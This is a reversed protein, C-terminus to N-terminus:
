VESKAHNGLSKQPNYKTFCQKKSPIKAAINNFSAKTCACSTGPGLRAGPFKIQSFQTNNRHKSSDHINWGESLSLSSITHIQNNIVDYIECYRSNLFFRYTSNQVKAITLWRYCKRYRSTYAARTKPKKVNQDFIKLVREITLVFGSLKHICILTKLIHPNPVKWLLLKTTLNTGEIRVTM